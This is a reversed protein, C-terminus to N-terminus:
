LTIAEDQGRDCSAQCPHSLSDDNDKYLPLLLDSDPISKNNSVSLFKRRLPVTSLPLPFANPLPQLIPRRLFKANNLARIM